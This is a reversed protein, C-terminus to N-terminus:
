IKGRVKKYIPFIYKSALINVYLFRKIKDKRSCWSGAFHHISYTKPTIKLKGTELSKPSFHEMPYITFSDVVQYEGNLILGKTLLPKTIYTVVTECNLSGDNNIFRRDNYGDVMYKIFDNKKEAGLILGPNIRDNSEFGSFVEHNLLPNLSKLIQVDTDLYIGGLNYLVWFRAYDSVFAYKKKLYAEKTYPISNVDFNDENWEVIEYDPLKEKWSNICKLFLPPLPNRGFWCYHIIKPIM